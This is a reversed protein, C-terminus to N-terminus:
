FYKFPTAFSPKEALTLGYKQLVHLGLLNAPQHLQQAEGVPIKGAGTEIFPCHIDSQLIRRGEALTSMAHPSFYFGGPLGTDCIFTMPSYVKSSLRFSARLLLRHHGPNRPRHFFFDPQVPEPAEQYDETHAMDVFSKPFDLETYALESSRELVDHMLKSTATLSNSSISRPCGCTMVLRRGIAKMNLKVVPSASPLQHCRVSRNM